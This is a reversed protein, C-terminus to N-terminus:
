GERGWLVKYQHSPLGDQIKDYFSEAIEENNQHPLTM